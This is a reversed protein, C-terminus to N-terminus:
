PAAGNLWRMGWDLEAGSCVHSPSDVSGGVIVGVFVSAKSHRGRWVASSGPEQVAIHMHTFGHYRRPSPAPGIM